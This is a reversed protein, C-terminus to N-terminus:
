RAGPRDRFTQNRIVRNLKREVSILYFFVGLWIVLIASLVYGAGSM